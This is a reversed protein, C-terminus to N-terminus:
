KIEKNKADEGFNNQYQNRALKLSKYGSKIRNRYAFIISNKTNM